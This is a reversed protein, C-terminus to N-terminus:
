WQVVVGAAAALNSGDVKPHHPLHKVVTSVGRAM